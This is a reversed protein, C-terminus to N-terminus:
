SSQRKLLFFIEWKMQRIASLAISNITTSELLITERPAKKALTSLEWLLYYYRHKECPFANKSGKQPHSYSELWHFTKHYRCLSKNWQRLFINEQLLKMKIWSLVGHCLGLILCFTKFCFGFLLKTFLELHSGNDWLQMTIWQILMEPIFYPVPRNPGGSYDIWWHLHAAFYFWKFRPHYSM